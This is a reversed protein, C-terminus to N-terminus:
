STPNVKISKGSSMHFQTQHLPQVLKGKEHVTWTMDSGRNGPTPYMPQNPSPMPAHSAVQGTGGAGWGHFLPLHFCRWPFQSGLPFSQLLLQPLM